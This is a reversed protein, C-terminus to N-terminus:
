CTACSGTRILRHGLGSGAARRVIVGGRQRGSRPFTGGEGLEPLEALAHVRADEALVIEDDVPEEVEIAAGVFAAREVHLGLFQEAEHSREHQAAVVADGVVDHAAGFFAHRAVLHELREANAEDHSLMTM